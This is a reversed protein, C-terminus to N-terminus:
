RTASDRPPLLDRLVLM